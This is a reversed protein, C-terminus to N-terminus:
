NPTYYELDPPRPEMRPLIAHLANTVIEDPWQTHGVTIVSRVHDDAALAHGAAALQDAVELALALVAEEDIEEVLIEIRYARRAPDPARDANAGLHEHPSM